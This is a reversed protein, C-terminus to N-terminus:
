GKVDLNGKDHNLNELIFAIKRQKEAQSVIM